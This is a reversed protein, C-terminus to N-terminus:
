VPIGSDTSGSADDDSDDGRPDEFQDRFLVATEEPIKKKRNYDWGLEAMQAKFTEAALKKNNSITCHKNFEDMAQHYEIYFFNSRKTLYHRVIRYNPKFRNHHAGDDMRLLENFTEVASKKNDHLKSWVDFDDNYSDPNYDESPKYKYYMYHYLSFAFSKDKVVAKIADWDERKLDNEKYMLVVLRRKTAKDARSLGYLGPDNSNMVCIAYNRGRATAKHMGRISTNISTSAKVWTNVEKDTYNDNEAEEFGIFLCEQLWSNFQDKMATPRVSDNAYRGFM